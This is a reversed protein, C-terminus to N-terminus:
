LFMGVLIACCVVFAAVINIFLDDIGQALTVVGALGLIGFLILIAIRVTKKPITIVYTPEDDDMYRYTLHKEIKM